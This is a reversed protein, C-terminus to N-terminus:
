ASTNTQAHMGSIGMRLVVKKRVCMAENIVTVAANAAATMATDDRSQM